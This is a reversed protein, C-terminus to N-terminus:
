NASEQDFKAGDSEEIRFLFQPSVLIAQLGFKMSDSFSMGSRNAREVIQVVREVELPEAPRRFAMRMLPGLNQRAADAMSLSDGPEVQIVRLHSEPYAPLGEFPGEIRLREVYLRTELSPTSADNTEDVFRVQLLHKGAKFTHKLDYSKAKPEVEFEQILEGDISFQAKVSNKQNDGFRMRIGIEYEGDAFQFESQSQEGAFLPEGEKSQKRLSMRDSVIATEAILESAQLYKELLLPPLSLVEGQNDFGNGVEDSVFGIKQSPTLDIAFLQRITNDYETNNLRRITVHGPMQVTECDVRHLVNEIWQSLREKEEATPQVEDPPPMAGVRAVGRIQDWLAPQSRVSKLDRYKTIDVDAEATEADHCKSCYKLILPRVNAEWEETLGEEFNKKSNAVSGPEGKEQAFGQPGLLVPTAMAVCVGLRWRVRKLLVQFAIFTHALQAYLPSLSM